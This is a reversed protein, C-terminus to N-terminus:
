AAVAKASRAYSDLYKLAKRIWEGRGLWPMIEADQLFLELYSLTKNCDGCLLGRLCQGCSQTKLDCCSHDHDVQLRHLTDENHHNLHGCIACVGLQKILKDRYWEVTTGYKKMERRFEIFRYHDRNANRYKRERIAVRKKDEDTRQARYQCAAIRLEEARAAHWPYNEYSM